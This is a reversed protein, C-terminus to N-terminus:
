SDNRNMSITLAAHPCLRIPRNPSRRCKAGIAQVSIARGFLTSSKGGSLATVSGPARRHRHLPRPRM